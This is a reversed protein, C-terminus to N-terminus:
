SGCTWLELGMEEACALYIADYIRPQRYRRATDLGQEVWVDSDIYTM